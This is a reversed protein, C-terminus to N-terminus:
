DPPNVKSFKDIASLREKKDAEYQLRKAEREERAKM